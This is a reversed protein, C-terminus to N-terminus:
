NNNIKEYDIAQSWQINNGSDSCPIEKILKGTVELGKTSAQYEADSWSIANIREGSWMQGNLCYHTTYIM